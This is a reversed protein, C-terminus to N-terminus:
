ELTSLYKVLQRVAKGRHSIVDPPLSKLEVRYLLNGKRIVSKINENGVAEECFLTYKDVSVADQLIYKKAALEHM